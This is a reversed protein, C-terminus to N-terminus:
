YAGNGRFVAKFTGLIIHIDFWFSRNDIYFSDLEQQRGLDAEGRGSIQWLGTLGPTVTCRRARFEPDMAALHYLPFPRPGVIRMDGRLINLLQPLEDISSARLFAGIVPLVRPDKRLKYHTAWEAKAAEDESLLRELRQDADRYMSRLKLMRFPRGGLGERTQRYIVPGPDAVYIAASALLLLPALAILMLGAAVIDLMRGARDRWEGAPAPLRLGIEGHRDAPWLEPTRTAPICPIAIVETARGRAPDPAGCADDCRLGIQWNVALYERLAAVDRAEGLLAAPRGWFGNRALVSRVLARVVPQLVLAIALMSLILGPMRWDDALLLAGATALLAVKATAAVRRRLLEHAYVGYGPYLGASWYLLVAGAAVLALVAPMEGALSGFPVLLGTGIAFTGVDGAFLMIPAGAASAARRVRRVPPRAPASHIPQLHPGEFRSAEPFQLELDHRLAAQTM